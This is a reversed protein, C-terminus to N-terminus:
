NGNRSVKEAIVGALTDLEHQLEKCEAAFAHRGEALARAREELRKAAAGLEQYGFSASSGALNHAERYLAKLATERHSPDFADRWHGHLRELRAPLGDAFRARYARLRRQLDTKNM